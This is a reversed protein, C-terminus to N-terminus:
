DGADGDAAPEPAMLGPNRILASGLYVSGCLYLVYDGDRQFRVSRVGHLGTVTNVLAYVACRAQATTLGECRDYFNGSLNIVAEGDMLRVALLDQGSVGEPVVGAVGEEWGEPGSLVMGLLARASVAEAPSCPRALARLRGNGDPLCVPAAEGTLAAFDERRMVGNEFNLERAGAETRTLLGEGLYVVVGSLDPVFGTLTNTLAAYFQWPEVGQGELTSQLNADFVLRVLRRGESDTYLQPEQIQPMAPSVAPRACALNPTRTMAELLAEILSGSTVSVPQAQCLLWEGGRAPYYVAATRTISTSSYLEEDALLQAWQAALDGDQASLAGTPVARLSLKKGEVLVNVTEIGPLGTLTNALAAQLALFTQGDEPAREFALDVTVVGCSQEVGLLSTGEPVACLLGQPTQRSLLAEVAALAPTRGEGPEVTRQSAVLSRRDPSLFYLSLTLPGEETYDELAPAESREPEPMSYGAQERPPLLSTPSCGTLLLCLAALCALMRKM